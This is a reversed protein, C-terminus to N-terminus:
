KAKTDVRNQLHILLIECFYLIHSASTRVPIQRVRFGAGQLPIQCSHKAEGLPTKQNTMSKGAWRSSKSWRTSRKEYAKLAKNINSKYLIRWHGHGQVPYKSTSFKCAYKLSSSIHMKNQIFFDLDWTKMSFPLRQKWELALRELFTGWM